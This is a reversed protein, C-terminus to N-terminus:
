WTAHVPVLANLTGSANGDGCAGNFCRGVCWPSGDSAIVCVHGAGDGGTALSGPHVGAPPNSMTIATPTQWVPTPSTTFDGFKVGWCSMSRNADIGLACAFQNYTGTDSAQVAIDNGPLSVFSANITGCQKYDNNGSCLVRTGLRMCALQGGGSAQIQAISGGAAVCTAAAGM